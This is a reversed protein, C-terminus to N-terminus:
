SHPNGRANFSIYFISSYKLEVSPTSFGEKLSKALSFLSFFAGM